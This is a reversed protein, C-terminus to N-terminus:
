TLLQHGQQQWSLMLLVSGSQTEDGKLGKIGPWQTSGGGGIGESLVVPWRGQVRGDNPLCVPDWAGFGIGSLRLWGKPQRFDLDRQGVCGLCPLALAGSGPWGVGCYFALILFQWM